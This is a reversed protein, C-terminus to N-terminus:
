ASTGSCCALIEQETLLRNSQKAREFIRNVTEEPAPLGKRELWFLINSKGSMPGIEIVQDMGFFHSPVGSYVTNALEVDNKKLAKIVAAAHV